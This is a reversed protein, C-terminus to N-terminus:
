GFTVEGTLEFPVEHARHARALILEATTDNVINEVALTATACGHHAAFEEDTMGLEDLHNSTMSM